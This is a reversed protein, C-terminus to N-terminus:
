VASKTSNLFQKAKRKNIMSDSRSKNLSKIRIKIRIDIFESVIEKKVDPCECTIKSFLANHINNQDRLVVMAAEFVANCKQVAEVISPNPSLLGGRSLSHIWCPVEYETLTSTPEGFKEMEPYKRKLKWALYGALYVLAEKTQPPADVKNRTMRFPIKPTEESTQVTCRIENRSLLNSSVYSSTCDNLVNTGQPPRVQGGLLILRLRYRFEPPSPNTNSGSFARIRSFLSELSDQTLRSTLLYSFGYIKTLDDYLNILSQISVIFGIQCPLLCTKLKRQATPVNPNLNEKEVDDSYKRKRGRKPEVKGKMFFRGSEMFSKLRALADMQKTLQFGFGSCLNNSNNVPVRSNFVDFGDNVAEIFNSVEPKDPFIVKALTASHHSLLQAAPRVRMREAGSVDLLKHSLKPCVTLEGSAASVLDEFTEKNIITGNETAFGDDLLHNRILKLMHPVDAFVHVRRSKDHPNEFWSKSTSIGYHKWISRNEGGLDSTVSLVPFGASELSIIIKELLEPTMPTDFDYYLPQKWNEYIGRAMLLQVKSHSVINDNLPDLIYRSDSSMEDYSIACLRSKIDLVSAHDRLIEVVDLLLGPSCSFKHVWRRLTRTAPLPLKYESRATEYAKLGVSRLSLAKVIDSTKWNVRKQGYLKRRQSPSFLKNVSTGLNKSKSNSVKLRRRLNQITEKLRKVEKQLTKVKKNQQSPPITQTAITRMKSEESSSSGFLDTEELNSNQLLDEVMKRSTRKQQRMNRTNPVASTRDPFVSPIATQSLIKRVPLGLLENQFDRMYDADTFHDSCIRANSVNIKDARKCKTAWSKSREKDNLPFRHFSLNDGQKKTNKCEAVACCYPM